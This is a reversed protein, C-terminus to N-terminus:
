VHKWDRNRHLFDKLDREACAESVGCQERIRGAFQDHRGDAELSSDDTLAGWKEKLKGIFQERKGAFQDRNM